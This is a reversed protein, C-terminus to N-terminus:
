AKTAESSEGDATRKLVGAAWDAVFRASSDSLVFAHKHRADACRVVRSRTLQREVADADEDRVWGDEGRAAYFFALKEELARAHAWDLDGIQRMETLAMYLANAAVDPHLVSLATDVAKANGASGPGHPGPAEDGADIGLGLLARQMSTPLLTHAAGAFLYAAQRGFRFVPLLRQGNSSAGIHMVTPFLCFVRDVRALLAAAEAEAAQAQAPTKAAATDAEAAAEVQAQAGPNIAQLAIHAGVSHGGLVLRARPFRAALLALFARKHRIQDALAFRRLWQGEASRRSHSTHGVCIVDM